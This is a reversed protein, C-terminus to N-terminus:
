CVYRSGFSSGLFFPLGRGYDASIGLTQPQSTQGQNFFFFVVRPGVDRANPLAVNTM